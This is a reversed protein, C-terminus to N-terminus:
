PRRRLELALDTEYQPSPLATPEAGGQVETERLTDRAAPDIWRARFTGDPLDLTLNVQTGGALHLAFGAGDTEGIAEVATGDPVDGVVISDAPRLQPLDFSELVDRLYGLQARLTEGGGGPSSGPAKTGRPHQVSFSYDLHSFAGGGALVFQWAETRYPANESGDFGTEDDGLVRGLDYNQDVAKPVAYHFNVIDIAPPLRDVVASGNAVNQAILHRQPLAAETEEIATIMRNTWEATVGGLYPENAIEYYFNDFGNLERVVKRVFREQLQTLRESTGDYVEKRGLSGIDQVNNTPNMPNVAWQRDEYVTSFLVLEVIVDHRGAERIFGKLRDFYQENWDTLDFRGQGDAGGESEARTWPALYDEPEPALTNEEIGFSAPVARYTGAFTRTQNLDHRDLEEFYPEYPFAANLVGGYHEGSGVLLIAEGEYRLYHSNEPHVHIPRRDTGARNLFWGSSLSLAALLAGIALIPGRSLIFPM